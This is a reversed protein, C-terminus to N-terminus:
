FVGKYFSYTKYRFIAGQPTIELLVLDSDVTGGQHQITGNISLMREAPKDSYILMSFKMAPIAQRVTLPLDRWDPVSKGKGQEPAAVALQAVLERGAKAKAEATKSDSGAATAAKVPKPQKVPAPAPPPKPDSKFGSKGRRSIPGARRTDNTERQEDGVIVAVNQEAQEPAEAKPSAKSATAPLKPATPSPKAVPAISQAQPVLSQRALLNESSVRWPQQWWWVLAGAVVVLCFVATCGLLLLWRLPKRATAKARIPPTDSLSPVKGRQREQDAQKLAKLIYSM